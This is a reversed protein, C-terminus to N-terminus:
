SGAPVESPRLADHAEKKFTARKAAMGGELVGQSIGLTAILGTLQSPDRGFGWGVLAGLLAISLLVMNWIRLKANM